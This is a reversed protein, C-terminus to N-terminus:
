RSMQLIRVVLGSCFFIPFSAWSEIGKDTIRSNPLNISELKDLSGIAHALQDTVNSKELHLKKLKKLSAIVESEEDRINTATLKLSELNELTAIQRFDERSISENWELETKGDRQMAVLRSEFTERSVKPLAHSHNHDHASGHAHDHHQDESHM